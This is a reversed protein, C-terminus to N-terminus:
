LTFVRKAKMFDTIIYSIYKGVLLPANENDEIFPKAEAIHLYSANKNKGFFYVFKRAHRHSFGTPCIGNSPFSHMADLDIEIGFPQDNIFNSARKLENQFSTSQYIAIEEFMNYELNTNEHIYDFIYQPTYNEHLGFMFYKNLYGEKLAYTFANGNHRVGASRLDTHPDLNIVNIPMNKATSLGKMNGYANNQGGGIVIPIKGVSILFHMLESLDKDIKKVLYDAKELDNAVFTKVTDLYDLYGLLLIDKGTLFQNEQANLLAEIAPFFATYCGGKEGNAKAGIDEPVGIIVFSAKSNEVEEFFDKNHDILLITEGLKTEKERKQVLNEIEEQAFINLM